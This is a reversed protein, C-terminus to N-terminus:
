QLETLVNREVRIRWGDAVRALVLEKLTRDAYNAARYELWFRVVRMGDQAELNVQPADARIVIDRASGIVRRRQQEWEARTGQLPAFDPHYHALYAEIDQAQWSTTWSTIFTDVSETDVNRSRPAADEPAPSAAVADGPLDPATEQEVVQPAVVDSAATETIAAETTVVETTVIGTTAVGTTAQTTGPPSADITGPATNNAPAATPSEQEPAFYVYAGVGAALLVAIILAIIRQSAANRAMNEAPPTLIAEIEQAAISVLEPQTHENEREKELRAYLLGPQGKTDRFLKGLTHEDLPKAVHESHLWYAQCFDNVQDRTLYPLTFSQSVFQTVARLAPTAIREDLEPTGSLVIRVLSRANDQINCLMRISSFAVPDLKQAEDVILVLPKQEAHRAHLWASLARTFNAAPNLQLRAVIAEQLAMASAPPELFLVAPQENAQLEDHLQTCLATKGAGHKGTIKIIGENIQLSVLIGQLIEQYPDLRLYM